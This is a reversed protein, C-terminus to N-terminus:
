REAQLSVVLAPAILTALTTLDAIDVGEFVEADPERVATLVGYTTNLMQIPIAVVHDRLYQQGGAVVLSAPHDAPATPGPAPLLHVAGPHAHGVLMAEGHDVVHLEVTTGFASVTADVVRALVETADGGGAVLRATEQVIARRQELRHVAREAEKDDTVDVLTIAVGVTSDHRTLRFFGCRMYRYAPATGLRLERAFVPEGTRLVQKAFNALMYGQEGLATHLDTGLLQMPDPVLGLVPANVKVFRLDTDLIVIGFPADLFLTEMLSATAEDARLSAAEGFLAICGAVSKDDNLMSFARFRMLYRHGDRDLIPFEGSWNEGNVLLVNLLEQADGQDPGPAVSLAVAHTGVADSQGYGLLEEARNNWHTVDGQQNTVAVGVGLQDLLNTLVLRDFAPNSAAPSSATSSM